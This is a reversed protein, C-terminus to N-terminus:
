MHLYMTEFGHKVFFQNAQQYLALYRGIRLPHALKMVQRILAEGCGQGQLHAYVAIQETHMRMPKCPGFERKLADATMPLRTEEVFEGAENRVHILCNKDGLDIGVHKTNHKTM